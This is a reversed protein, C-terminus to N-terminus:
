FNLKAHPKKSIEKKKQINEADDHFITEIKYEM